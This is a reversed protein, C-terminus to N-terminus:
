PDAGVESKAPKGTCPPLTGARCAATTLLRELSKPDLTRLGRGRCVEAHAEPTASARSRRPGPSAISSGNRRTPSGPLAHRSSAKRFALAADAASSDTMVSFVHGAVAPRPESRNLQLFAATSSAVSRRENIRRVPLGHSAARPTVAARHREHSTTDIAGRARGGGATPRDRAMASERRDRARPATARRVVGVLTTGRRTHSVHEVRHRERETQRDRESRSERAPHGLKM